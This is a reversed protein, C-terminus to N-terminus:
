DPSTIRKGVALALGAPAYRNPALAASVRLGGPIVSRRGRDAARLADAAVRDADAWLFRPLRKDYSIDNLEQFETAVPGPLVATVTVGTGRLESNLAQCHFLVFAKAASYTAQGPLPQLGATSSLSIVAGRGAAVMAPLYRATLDVVAEVSLRVTEIERERDSQHFWANTGVGASNVLVSVQLGTDAVAQVLRDRSAPDALDATVAEARVGHTRSLEEALQQLRDARRAVLILGHGRQALARALAQGIGSSAGTVLAATDASPSPLAV